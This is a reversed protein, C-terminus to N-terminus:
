ASGSLWEEAESLSRFSRVRAPLVGESMMEYMRSLGFGVDTDAVIAVRAGQRLPGYRASIFRAIRSMDAATMKGIVSQRMDWLSHMDPRFDPHEVMEVFARILGDATVQGAPTIVAIGRETDFAIGM